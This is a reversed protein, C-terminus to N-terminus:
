MNPKDEGISNVDNTDEIINGTNSTDTSNYRSILARLQREIKNINTAKDMVIIIYGNLETIVTNEANIYEQTNETNTISPDSLYEQKYTVFDSLSKLVTSYNDKHPKFVGILYAKDERLDISFSYLELQKIDINIDNLIVDAQENQLNSIIDKNSFKTIIKDIDNMQAITTQNNIDEDTQAEEGTDSKNYCIIVVLTIALIIILILLGVKAIGSKNKIETNGQKNHKLQNLKNHSSEQQQNLEKEPKM